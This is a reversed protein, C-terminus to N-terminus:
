EGLFSFQVKSKLMLMQNGTWEMDRSIREALITNHLMSLILLERIM